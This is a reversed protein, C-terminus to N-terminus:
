TGELELLITTNLFLHNLNINFVYWEIYIGLARWPCGHTLGPANRATSPTVSMSTQQIGETETTRKSENTAWSEQKSFPPLLFLIWWWECNGRVRFYRHPNSRNSVVCHVKTFDTFGCIRRKRENLKNKCLYYTKLTLWVDKWNLHLLFHKYHM